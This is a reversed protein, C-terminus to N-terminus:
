CEAKVKAKLDTIRKATIKDGIALIIGGRV